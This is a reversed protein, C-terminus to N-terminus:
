PPAARRNAESPAFDERRVMVWESASASAWTSSRADQAVATSTEGAGLRATPARRDEGERFDGTQRAKGSRAREGEEPM